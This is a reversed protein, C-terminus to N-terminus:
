LALHTHRMYIAQVSPARRACVCSCPRTAARARRAARPPPVRGWEMSSRWARELMRARRAVLHVVRRWPRRRDCPLHLVVHQREHHLLLVADIAHAAAAGRVAGSLGARAGGAWPGVPSRLAGSSARAAAPPPPPARSARARRASTRSWTRLRAARGSVRGGCGGSRSGALFRQYVYVRKLPERYVSVPTSTRRYVANAPAADVERDSYENVTRYAHKSKHKWPHHKHPRPARRLGM